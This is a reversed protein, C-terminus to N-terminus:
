KSRAKETSQDVITTLNEGINVGSGYIRIIISVLSLTAHVSSKQSTLIM